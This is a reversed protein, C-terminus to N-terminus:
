LLSKSAIEYVDKSIDSTNIIRELERKILHQRNEDFRKWQTLAAVMRSAVQPNIGNLAIVQDALFQYGQGNAAHFHLQNAQSFAGVLSRVRNPNTLEFASHQMLGTVTSFTDDAHSCAQLTFWKDIVLAEDQWQQYFSELCQAKAPNNSEVIVTLAAIQDTMNGALSFQKEALQYSEASELATLYSLCINKIRRRGIAGADFQGSEDKHYRQYLDAFQSQLQEALTKKVFERAQHIADVDVVDM